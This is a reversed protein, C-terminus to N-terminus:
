GEPPACTTHASKMDRYSVALLRAIIPPPPGAIWDYAVSPAAGAMSFSGGAAGNRACGGLACAIALLLAAIAARPTTRGTRFLTSITDRIMGRAIDNFDM